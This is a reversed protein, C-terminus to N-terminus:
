LRPFWTWEPTTVLARDVAIRGSTTLPKLLTLTYSLSVHMEGKLFIMKKKKHSFFTLCMSQSIYKNDTNDFFYKVTKSTNKYVVDRLVENIFGM